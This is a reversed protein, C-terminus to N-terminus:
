AKRVESIKRERMRKASNKSPSQTHTHHSSFILCSLKNFLYTFSYFSIRLRNRIINEMVVCIYRYNPLFIFLFNIVMRGVVRLWVCCKKEITHAHFTNHNDDFQIIHQYYINTAEIRGMDDM